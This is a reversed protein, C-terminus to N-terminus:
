PDQTVEVRLQAVVDLQRHLCMDVLNAECGVFGFRGLGKAFREDYQLPVEVFVM